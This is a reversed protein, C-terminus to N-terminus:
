LREKIETLTENMKFFVILTEIIVRALILIFLYYILGFKIRDWLNNTNPLNYNEPTDGGMIIFLLLAITLIGVLVAFFIKLLVLTWMREFNFFGRLKSLITMDNNSRRQEVVTYNPKKNPKNFNVGCNVCINATEDISEGCSHCSKSQSKVKYQKSDESPNKMPVDLIMDSVGEFVDEEQDSINDPINEEKKDIVIKPVVVGKSCKPCKVTKGTDEDPVGIKQNCSICCFKIM